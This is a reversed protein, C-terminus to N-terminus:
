IDGIVGAAVVPGTPAGTLSGGAPEVSVALTWGAPAEPYPVALPTDGLLGLSVPAANHAILWLEQSQGEAAANGAIRTVTLEGQAFRAEFRLSGDGLVAVLAPSPPIFVALAVMLLAATMAGGLWGALRAFPRALPRPKPAPAPFLRAEIRDLMDPPPAADGYGDNLGSLRDQWAAVQAAFAADTKIRAETAVRDPLSQVGLVYEAALLDDGDRANLPTDDTM